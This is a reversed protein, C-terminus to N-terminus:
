FAARYGLSVGWSADGGTSAGNASVTVLSTKSLRHDLDVIARAWDQKLTQGPLSFSWLGVVQGSAGSGNSEFRHAAELSLKLDTADSLATKGAAGLRLDNSRWTSANYAVPFGGGTETYADLKTETWTYAGYPSLSFAGVQAVNKWDLRARLAITSVNPTATSTDVAAGNTYNRRLDTSYRGYSGLLSGELGQSFATGAEAVLYQGRYKAGGGLSWDQRAWTQGVGLGIRTAGIDKCAGVEALEMRTNSGDHRAADATAWGCAGDQTRVLGSDLLSRHHAGFLGLSALGAAGQVAQTGAQIVTANFAPVDTLIGSGAGGVRALWAQTTGTPGTGDGVVVSGDSNTSMANTLTWGAPLTVGAGSLWGAVSQMGTTQTWRFASYAGGASTSSLGVIVAGDASVARATSDTGGPLFGLGVM